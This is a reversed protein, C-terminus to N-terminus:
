AQEAQGANARAAPHLVRQERAVESAIDANVRTRNRELWETIEKIEHERIAITAAQEAKERKMALIEADREKVVVLLSENLVRYREAEREAEAAAAEATAKVKEAEAALYSCTARSRFWGRVRWWAVTIAGPRGSATYTKATV